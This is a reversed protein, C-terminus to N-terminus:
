SENLMILKVNARAYEFLLQFSIYSDLFIGGYDAHASVFGYTREVKWGDLSM